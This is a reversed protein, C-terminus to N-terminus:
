DIITFSDRSQLFPFHKRFEELPERELTRYLVIEDHVASELTEGKFDIIASRGNHSIENGDNGVRNVAAIYCQNEIARATLLHSWAYARREPWNAVVIMLDYDDDNRCWVPFRLDYCVILRIRWGNYDVTLRNDGSNYHNHEEGLSFLHRKDYHVFSGNPKMWIMRNYFKGAEEFMLSGTVVCSKEAAWRKMQELAKTSSDKAFLEPRMSFGTAFMEPLVIIDVDQHISVVQKDIHELNADANEWVLNTQVLAIRLENHNM